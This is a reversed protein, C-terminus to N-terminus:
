QFGKGAGSATPGPKKGRDEGGVPPLIGRMGFDVIRVYEIMARNVLPQIEIGSDSVSAVVGVPLGPPFADGHGSTVVRDGPSVAASPTLHILRPRESNDGALIARTRSSELLVPIRSNLDTILLVRIFHTGIDTVRGVLGDGTIVAQGKRVNADPAGGLLLNRAFAGGTDGIVRATVFSVRPDPILNLLERLGNNEAELRRAIAQWKLLRMRQERLRSNEAKLNALERVQEVVENVTDAPRSLVELIPAIADTVQTRFREVLVIDAKGLLMLAFSMGILGLYAFRQAINRIPATLRQAHKSGEKM